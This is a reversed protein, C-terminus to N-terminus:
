QPSIQSRTCLFEKMFAIGNRYFPPELVVGKIQKHNETVFQFIPDFSVGDNAGIQVFNLNENKNLLAHLLSEFFDFHNNATIQYGIKKFVNKIIKKLQYM